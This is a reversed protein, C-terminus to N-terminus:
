SVWRWVVYGVLSWFGVVGVIIATWAVANVKDIPSKGWGRNTLDRYGSM